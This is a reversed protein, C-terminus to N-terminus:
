KWIFYYIKWKNEKLCRSDMEERWWRKIQFTVVVHRRQVVNKYVDRQTEEKNDNRESDSATAFGIFHAPMMPSNFTFCTVGIFDPFSHPLVNTREMVCNFKNFDLHQGQCSVRWIYLIEIERHWHIGLFWCSLAKFSKNRLTFETLIILPNSYIKLGLLIWTVWFSSGATGLM